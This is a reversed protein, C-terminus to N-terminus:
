LRAASPHPESLLRCVVLEFNEPKFMSPLKDGTPACDALRAVVTPFAKSFAEPAPMTLDGAHRLFIVRNFRALDIDNRELNRMCAVNGFRRDLFAGFTTEWLNMEGRCWADAVGWMMGANESTQAEVLAITRVEPPQLLLAPVVVRDYAAMIEAAGHQLTSPPSVITWVMLAVAAAGAGLHVFPGVHAQLMEPWGGCRICAIAVALLLGMFEPQGHLQSRHYLCFLACAIATLAGTLLMTRQRQFCAAAVGVAILISPLPGMKGIVYSAYWHLPTAGKEADYWGGQLRMFGLTKAFDTAVGVRGRDYMLLWGLFVAAAIVAAALLRAARRERIARIFEMAFFPAAFSGFTPKGLLCAGAYIGLLAYFSAPPALNEPGYYRWLPLGALALPVALSHYSTSNLAQDGLFLPVSVIFLGASITADILPARQDVTVFLLALSAAMLVIPWIL